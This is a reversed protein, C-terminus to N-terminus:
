KLEKIMNKIEKEEYFHPDLSLEYKSCYYEYKDNDILLSGCIDYLNIKQELNDLLTNLFLLADDNFLVVWCFNDNVYYYYGENNVEYKYSDDDDVIYLKNDFYAYHELSVNICNEQKSCYPMKIELCVTKNPKICKYKGNELNKNIVLKEDVEQHYLKENIHNYLTKM